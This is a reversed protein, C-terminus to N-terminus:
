YIHTWNMFLSYNDLGLKQFIMKPYYSFSTNHSKKKFLIFVQLIMDEIRM